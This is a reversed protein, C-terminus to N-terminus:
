EEGSEELALEHLAVAGDFGVVRADALLALAFRAIEAMQRLAPEDDFWFALEGDEHRFVVQLDGDVHGDDSQQLSVSVRPNQM